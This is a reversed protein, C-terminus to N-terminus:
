GRQRRRLIVAALALAIVALAVSSSAARGVTCGCGDGGGGHGADPAGADVGGIGLQAAYTTWFYPCHDGVPTGAPCDIPGLTDQYSLISRFTQAGDDSRALAAFDPAYNSSCVFIAGDHADVCQAQSLAGVPALTDAGAYLGNRTAVLVLNRQGDVAVGDIGRTAGSSTTEGTLRLLERVHAGGDSSRLLVQLPMANAGGAVVFARVYITDVSRPDVLMLEAAYPASGDVSFDLPVSSFHAGGDTSRVIAVQFPASGASSTAYITQADGAVRVSAYRRGPESLARSWTGGHDRTVYLGNDAVGGDASDVVEDTSLWAVAGDVPDVAVDTVRKQAPEGGSPRWTCGGDSSITVGLLDSAWFTGDASVAYKRARNPNIEEECIWRWPGVGDGVWLGWFFVPVYLTPKGPTRLLQQSVPLGGHASAVLPWALVVLAALRRM